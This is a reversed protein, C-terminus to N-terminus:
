AKYDINNGIGLDKYIKSIAQCFKEILYLAPHERIETRMTNTTVAPKSQTSINQLNTNLTSVSQLANISNETSMANGRKLIYGGM